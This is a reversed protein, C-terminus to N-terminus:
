DTFWDRYLGPCDRLSGCPDPTWIKLCDVFLLPLATLWVCRCGNTGCSFNRTSIERLPQTSSLVMTCSSPNHWHFIGIVV